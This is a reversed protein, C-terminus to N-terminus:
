RQYKQLCVVHQLDLSSDCMESIRHGSLMSHTQVPIVCRQYEAVLCCVTVRLDGRARCDSLMNYIYVLCVGTTTSCGSLM